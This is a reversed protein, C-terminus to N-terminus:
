FALGGRLMLSDQLSINAASDTRYVLKRETVWGLEVFGKVTTMRSFWEFGGYVRIDNIDVQDSSGALPGLTREVTWSGGGYEAAVYWWLDTNGLTTLRQSLKPRPFYIEWRM